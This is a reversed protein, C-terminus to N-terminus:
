RRAPMQRRSTSRDMPVLTLRWVIRRQTASVMNVGGITVNIAGDPQASATLNVKGALDEITKEREDVLDNATGGSSQAEMIQQNLLAIQTLDQNSAAVDSQISTNLNSAVTALGSSVQNFQEALQQASPDRGATQFIAPNTSLTQL